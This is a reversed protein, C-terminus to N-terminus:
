GRLRADLWAALDAFVEKRNTENFMEHRGESYLKLTVDGSGAERLKEALTTVGKGAQGVPDRDGALLYVPLSAPLQALNSVKSVTVLGGLLDIWLQNSVRFGCLPDQVYLDVQANDRSLWDYATRAPKFANNFAGFSLFELLASKGRAGQRFKELRALLGAIRYLVVSGFNSGSLVLADIHKGHEIAWGQAIFSGMSHGLLIVPVGPHASRVHMVAQQLDAVVRQWGNSDAFHGIDEPRAASKGHGRHDIAHVTIGRGALFEALAAYRAGHEAMGHAILLAARPTGDADWRRMAISHGDSAKLTTTSM